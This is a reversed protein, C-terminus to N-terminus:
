GQDARTFSHSRHSRHTYRQLVVRWSGDLLQDVEVKAKAYGRRGPGEPIDIVMGGLRVTNDNGVVPQYRFSITREIDLGRPVRRWVRHSVEPERAFRRNYDGIFQETLFSHGADMDTIDGLDMEAILRDQLVGFLRGIRGKAGLTNLKKKL